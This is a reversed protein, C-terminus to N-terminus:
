MTDLCAKRFSLKDIELIWNGFELCNVFKLSDLNPYNFTTQQKSKPNQLKSKPNQTKPKAQWANAQSAVTDFIPQDVIDKFIVVNPTVSVLFERPIIREKLLNRVYLRLVLGSSSDIYLDQIKGLYRGSETKATVGLILGSLKTIEDIQKLSPDLKSTNDIVVINRDLSLVDEFYLAAEKKILSPLGLQFAVLQVKAGNFVLQKVTGVKAGTSDIVQNKVLQSAEIIM